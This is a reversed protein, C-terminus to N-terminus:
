RGPSDDDRQYEPWPVPPAGAAQREFEDLFWQRFRVLLAPTALTLLYDGARCYEDAEDLLNGLHQAAPGVDPPVTYCLEDLVTDGGSVADAMIAEQESTFPSYSATLEQVMDVLRTPLGSSGEQRLQEAVLTLERMLEDSHRQSAALLDLPMQLIRIEVLKPGGAEDTGTM